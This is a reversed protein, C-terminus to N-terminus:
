ILDDVPLREPIVKKGAKGRRVVLGHYGLKWGYFLFSIAGRCLKDLYGPIMYLYMYM